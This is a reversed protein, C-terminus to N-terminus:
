GVPIPRDLTAGDRAVIQGNFLVLKRQPYSAVAEALCSAGTTFLNATAGVRLGYDALGLAKAGNGGILDFAPALQDDRRWDAKWGIIAARELM